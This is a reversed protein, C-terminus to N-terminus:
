NPSNAPARIWSHNKVSLYHLTFILNDRAQLSAVSLSPLWKAEEPVPRQSSPAPPIHFKHIGQNLLSAFGLLWHEVHSVQTDTPM